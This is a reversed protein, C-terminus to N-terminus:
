GVLLRIYKALRVVVTISQHFELKLGLSEAEATMQKELDSLTKDGYISPERAGLRDLNPGNIIAITKM